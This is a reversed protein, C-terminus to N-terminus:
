VDFGSNLIKPMMNLVIITLLFAQFSGLIVIILAHIMTFALPIDIEMMTIPVLSFFPVFSFGGTFAFDSITVNIDDPIQNTFDYSNYGLFNDTEVASGQMTIITVLVAFNILLCIVSLFLYLSIKPLVAGM